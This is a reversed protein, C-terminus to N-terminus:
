KSHKEQINTIEGHMSIDLKLPESDKVSGTERKVIVLKANEAILMGDLANRKAETLDCLRQTAIMYDDCLKDFGKMMELLEDIQMSIFEVENEMENEMKEYEM